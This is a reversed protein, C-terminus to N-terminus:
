GSGGSILRLALQPIQNAQSLISAAVQQSIQTKLYNAAEEAVDSDRIRSEASRYNERSISLVNTAVSIRSMSSGINGLESTIRDLESRYFDLASRADSQTLLSRFETLASKQTQGLFMTMVSPNASTFTTVDLVGDNNIDGTTFSASGAFSVAAKFTGDGNSLLLFNTNNQSTFIDVYGDNNFDGLDGGYILINESITVESRFSGNGNGFFIKLSDNPGRAYFDLFGDNNFDALVDPKTFAAGWGANITAGLSFSGDSNGLLIRHIGDNRGATIMDKIGDGNLDAIGKIGIDGGTTYTVASSFTANGNGFYIQVTGNTSNSSVLDINGDNNFDASLITDESGTIVPGIDTRAGFTRDGLNLVYSMIGGGRTFVLDKKGDNNVDALEVYNPFGGSASIASGFTGNGNGFFIQIGDGNPNPSILDQNGDGDLDYLNVNSGSRFGLSMTALTTYTGTGVDRHLENNTALILGSGGAQLNLSRTDSSFISVGNFKTTEIIRNFEKRIADNESQLAKRQALSYTGNASQEALEMQRIVVDSLSQLAGQSINLLSVGDNLNRIGQNFVRTDAKLSDAIALGAADDSAKNIRMGSSLKESISSLNDTAKALQRQTILSSINSNIKM